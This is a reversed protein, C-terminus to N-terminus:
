PRCCRGACRRWATSTSGSPRAGTTRPSSWSPHRLRSAPTNVLVDIRGLREIVAAVAGRVEGADAVDAAFALGDVEEATARAAAADRDLVAVRAGETVYAQAIARGIGAGGGTILAVRGQLRASM